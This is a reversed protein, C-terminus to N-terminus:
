HHHPKKQFRIELNHLDVLAGAAILFNMGLIGNIEFGYDMGGVEVEFEELQCEDVQLFDLRRSFVVESGGVGRIAFLPDNPLPTLDVLKLWDASLISSASGTDVLVSPIILTKGKYAITVSVFPLEDKLILRM